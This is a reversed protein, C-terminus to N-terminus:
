LRSVDGTPHIKDLGTKQRRLGTTGNARHYEPVQSTDGGARTDPDISTQDYVFIKKVTFLSQYYAGHRQYENERISDITTLGTTMTRYGQAVTHELTQLATLEETWTRLAQCSGNLACSLCLVGSVILQKM